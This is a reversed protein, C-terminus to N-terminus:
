ELYIDIPHLGKTYNNFAKLYGREIKEVFIETNFLPSSILNKELKDKIQLYKESDTALEIAREQYDRYTKAILTELGLSTLISSAMRGAFTNGKKTLVPLGAWLADNATTGANFPLTDLFLDAFKYRELYEHYNLNEGFILRDPDISRAKAEKRLNNVAFNSGKALWLISGEVKLLIQAWVNFIDPNIKHTSNFCCFVFGKEPLGYHARTLKKQCIPRTSDSVQFCHPLCIFKESYHSSGGSSIIFKDVVIYDIFPAGMTGPYGLYNVQIPAIRASFIDTRADKTYGCLDVAIDIRLKRLEYILDDQNLDDLEYFEDFAKVLRSRYADKSDVRKFSIGIIEFQNRNHKEYLEATLYSVPHSKFDPSCYAIRIKTSKSNRDFSVKQDCQYMDAFSKAAKLQMEADDYIGLVVLPQLEINKNNFNSLIKEKDEDYSTWDCQQLKSHVLLGYLFDLKPNIEFAKGLATTAKDYLKLDLLMEGLSMWAEAYNSKCSIAGNFSELAADYQNLKHLLLARNYWAVSCSTNLRIANEYAILAQDNLNLAQFPTAMNLWPIYNKENLSIAREYSEISQKYKKLKSLAMAYNCWIVESRPNICILEECLKEADEYMKLDLFVSAKNTLIDLDQDSLEYARDYLELAYEHNGQISEIIALNYYIRYDGSDIEAVNQFIKKAEAYRGEKAYTLGITILDKKM